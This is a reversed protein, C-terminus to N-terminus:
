TIVFKSLLGSQIWGKLLSAAHLGADEESIWQCLGACIESFNFGKILADIAWAEEQPMSCFQNILDKRWLIWPVSTATTIPEPIIQENNIAQWIQVVNWKLNLRQLSSHIHFQMEPWSEPAIVVIDEIKLVPDDAADFALTLAWEFQALEILYPLEAYFITEALFTALTDGFWRISRHTSPNSKLYVMGLQNFAECGLYKQLVPYNNALADILRARYANEYISLRAEASFTATGNICQKFAANSTLLYHQFDKQLDSLKNM